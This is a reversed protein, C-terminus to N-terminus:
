GYQVKFVFKDFSWAQIELDSIGMAEPVQTSVELGEAKTFSIM